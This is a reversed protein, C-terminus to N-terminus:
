EKTSFTDCEECKIETDPLDSVILIAGCNTCLLQVEKERRVLIIFEAM